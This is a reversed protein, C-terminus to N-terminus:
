AKKRYKMVDEYVEPIRKREENTLRMHDPQTMDIAEIMDKFYDYEYQEGYSYLRGVIRWNKIIYVGNDGNNCDLHQCNGVDCSLGNGFHNTIVNILMAYGYSDNEPKRYHKLDCYALFAEVSDRGGNWHLYIGTDNLEKNTTIVARNGM